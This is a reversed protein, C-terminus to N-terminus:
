TLSWLVASTHDFIMELTWRTMVDLLTKHLGIIGKLCTMDGRSLEM